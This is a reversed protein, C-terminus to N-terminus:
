RWSIGWVRPYGDADQNFVIDQSSLVGESYSWLPVWYAQDAILKLGQAYLKKREDINLTREAGIMLPLSCQRYRPCALRKAPKRAITRKLSRELLITSPNTQTPSTREPAGASYPKSVVSQGGSSYTVGM